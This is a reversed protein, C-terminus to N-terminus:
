KCEPIDVWKLSGRMGRRCSKRVFLIAKKFSYAFPSGAETTGLVVDSFASKRSVSVSTHPTFIQDAGAREVTQYNELRKNM